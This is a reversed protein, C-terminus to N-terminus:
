SVNRSFMQHYVGNLNLLETHTGAETVHGDYIVSILDCSRVTSLRHAITLSTCNQDARRYLELADLIM